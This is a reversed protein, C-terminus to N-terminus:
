FIVDDDEEEVEDKQDYFNEEAEEKTVGQSEAKLKAM